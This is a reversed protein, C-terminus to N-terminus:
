QRRDHSSFSHMCAELDFEVIQKIRTLVLATSRAAATSIDNKSLITTTHVSAGLKATRTTTVAENQEKLDDSSLRYLRAYLCTARSRSISIDRLSTIDM